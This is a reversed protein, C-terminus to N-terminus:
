GDNLGDGYDSNEGYHRKPVVAIGILREVEDSSSADVMSRISELMEDLSHHHDFYERGHTESELVVRLTAENITGQNLIM